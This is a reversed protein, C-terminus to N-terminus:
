RNRAVASKRKAEALFKGDGLLWRTLITEIIESFGATSVACRDVRQPLKTIEGIIHRGDRLYHHAVSFIALTTVHFAIPPALLRRLLWLGLLAFTRARRLHHRELLLHPTGGTGRRKLRPDGDVAATRLAAGREVRAPL